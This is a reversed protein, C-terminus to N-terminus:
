LYTPCRGADDHRSEPHGCVECESDDIGNVWAERAARRVAKKKAHRYGLYYSLLGM